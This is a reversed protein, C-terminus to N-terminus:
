QAEAAAAAAVAERGCREWVDKGTLITTIFTVVGVAGYDADVWGLVSGPLVIDLIQAAFSWGLRRLKARVEKQWLVRGKKRRELVKRLRAQEQLVDFEAEGVKKKEKGGEGAATSSSSSSAGPGANVAGKKKQEDEDAFVDGVVPVPTYALIELARLADAAAGCVLALAWFRQAERALLAARAPAWVALGPVELAEALTAAELLLYLGNFTRDLGRLGATMRVWTPRRRDNAAAAGVGTGDGFFQRQAGRFAELFRFFRFFRRALALRQRLVPLIVLGAALGHDSQKASAAAAAPEGWTLSSLLLSLLVPYAHLIQVIAQVM